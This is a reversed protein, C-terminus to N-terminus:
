DTKVELCGGCDQSYREFESRIWDRAAGIGRGSAIAQPDQESITLRTHFSVLKEITAQIRSASVQRLAAAIQPDPNATAVGSQAALSTSLLGTWALMILKSSWAPYRRMGPVERSTHRPFILGGPVGQGFGRSFRFIILHM